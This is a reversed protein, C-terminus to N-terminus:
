MCECVHYTLASFSSDSWAVSVAALGAECLLKQEKSFCDGGM